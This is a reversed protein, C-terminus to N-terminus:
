ELGLHMRMISKRTGVRRTEDIYQRREMQWKRGKNSEDRKKQSQGDGGKKATSRERITTAGRSPSGERM